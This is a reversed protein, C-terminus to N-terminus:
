RTVMGFAQSVVGAKSLLKAAYHACGYATSQHLGEAIRRRYKPELDAIARDISSIVQWLEESGWDPEILLRESPIYLVAAQKSLLRVCEREAAVTQVTETVTEVLVAVLGILPIVTMWVLIQM